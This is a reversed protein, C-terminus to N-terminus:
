VSCVPCDPNKKIKVEKFSMESYDCWLIRGKLLTGQKGLYKLAEMAQISGTIGPTAGLVPFVEQPPADPFICALCPTEPHHFFTVMGELGWIGGHIMPIKKKVATANILYRTPYNDMCDIVLDSDGILDDINEETIKEEVAEVVVDPNLGELTMKASRAKNMGIRSDNHLFQRNLNSLVLCDYDCIRITGVGAVALNISVPSGLGGAGAIFVKSSKIKKQTEEGWNTIIMQRSYRERESKKFKLSEKQNKVTM